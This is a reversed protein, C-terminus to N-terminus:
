CFFSMKFFYKGFIFLDRTTPPNTRIKSHLKLLFVISKAYNRSHTPIFGTEGVFYIALVHNSIYAKKQSKYLITKTLM